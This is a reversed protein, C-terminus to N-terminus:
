RGAGPSTERPGFTKKRLKSEMAETAQALEQERASLCSVSMPRTLELHKAQDWNGQATFCEISKFRQMAVEAAELVGGRLIADIIAAYTTLEHDNRGTLKTGMAPRMVTQLYLDVLPRLHGQEDRPGQIGHGSMYRAMNTLGEELLIGPTRRRIEHIRQSGAAGRAARFLRARTGESGSGSSESSNDM